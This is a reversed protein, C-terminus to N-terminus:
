GSIEDKEGLLGSMQRFLELPELAEGEEMIGMGYDSVRAEPTLDLSAVSTVGGKEVEAQLNSGLTACNRM